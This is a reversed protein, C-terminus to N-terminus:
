SITPSSSLLNNKEGGEGGGGMQNINNVGLGMLQGGNGNDSDPTNYRIQPQVKWNNWLACIVEGAIVNNTNKKVIRLLLIGDQRCYHNVFEDIRKIPQQHHDGGNGFNTTSSSTSSVSHYQIDNAKLFRRIFETRSNSTFYYFWKLLGYISAAAVFALWFWIVLFIKENYINIPLLCQVDYSQVNDGLTRILFRCITIRPFRDVANMENGRLWQDIVNIGYMNFNHGMFLNLLFL